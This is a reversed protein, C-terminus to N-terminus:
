ALISDWRMANEARQPQNPNAPREYNALFALALDYPSDTSVAFEAFSMPYASTAIWQEGNEMEWKIRMCQGDIDGWGYGNADAWDTYKTSPTWQVLGFGSGGGREWLGPNLTAEEQMNAIMAIVPNRGWGLNMFFALIYRANGVQEAGFDELYENSSTVDGPTPTPTPKIAGIVVDTIFGRVTTVKDGAKTYFVGTWGGLDIYGDAPPVVVTGGGGGGPYRLVSNWPFNYYNTVWIEKGTQDGTQGGTIGGFENQSAQVVQGDGIYMATHGSGLLVDGRILGDGTSVNVEGTVDSFGSATFGAYMDGTYSAGNQKVPVGANEWATILLASCDYDPGWRNGQDYGHSDDEAISVAWQIAQEIENAM